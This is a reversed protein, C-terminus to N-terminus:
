TCIKSDSELGKDMPWMPHTAQSEMKDDTFCSYYHIEKLTNRKLSNFGTGLISDDTITMTILPLLGQLYLFHLHFSVLAEPSFGLFGGGRSGASSLGALVLYLRSNPEKHKDPM